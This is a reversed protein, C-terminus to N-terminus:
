LRGGQDALAAKPSKWKQSVRARELTQLRTRGGRSSSNLVPPVRPNWWTRESEIGKQPM